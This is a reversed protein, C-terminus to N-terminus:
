LCTKNDKNYIGGLANVYTEIKMETVNIWNNKTWYWNYDSLNSIYIPEYIVNKVNFLEYPIRIVAYYDASNYVNGNVKNYVVDTDYNKSYLKIGNQNKYYSKYKNYLSTEVVLDDLTSHNGVIIEFGHATQSKSANHHNSYAIRSVAGYYGIALSRRQLDLLSTAGFMLGDNDKDRIMLVKYGMSEYRCKEYLAQKLNMTKELMVGNSAGSDSGGHGPDIVFDYEYKFDDVVVTVYDSEYEFTILKNGVKGRLLRTLGDLKNLLKEEKTSVLYVEYKGNKVTTLDLNGKYYNTKSITMNFLYELSNNINKLKLRYQDSKTKAYGELYLGSTTFRNAIITNSYKSYDYKTVIRKNGTMSALTVESKKVIVERKVSSTNGSSDTVTYTLPYTGEKKVNVSGDIVVKDNLDKDYNDEVEVGDDLYIGNLLVYVKEEGKLTITPKINDIVLVDRYIYESTNDIFVEYKVKYKGLVSTDLSSTDIKIDKSINKGKYYAKAGYESYPTLVDIYLTRPGELDFYVTDNTTGYEFSYTVGLFSVILMIIFTTVYYMKKM